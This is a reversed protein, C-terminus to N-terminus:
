YNYSNSNELSVSWHSICVCVYLCVHIYIFLQLIFYILHNQMYIYKIILCYSMCNIPASFDWWRGAPSGVFSTNYNLGLGFTQYGSSMITLSLFLHSSIDWQLCHLLFFFSPPHMGREAANQETWARSPNSSPWGWQSSCNVKNLGGIWLSIEDPSVRVFVGLFFHKIQASQSWDLQCM